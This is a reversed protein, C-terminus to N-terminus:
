LQPQPRPKSFAKATTDDALAPLALLTALIAATTKRFFRM